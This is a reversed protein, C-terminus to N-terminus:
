HWVSFQCLPENVIKKIGNSTEAAVKKLMTLAFFVMFFQLPTVYNGSVQPYKTKQEWHMIYGLPSMTKSHWMKTNLIQATAKRQVTTVVLAVKIWILMVM